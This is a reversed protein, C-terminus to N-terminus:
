YWWLHNHFINCPALQLRSNITYLFTLRLSSRESLLSNGVLKRSSFQKSNVGWEFIDSENIWKGSLNRVHPLIDGDCMAPTNPPKHHGFCVNWEFGISSLHTVTITTSYHLVSSLWAPTDRTNVKMHSNSWIAGCSVVQVVISAQPSSMVYVGYM